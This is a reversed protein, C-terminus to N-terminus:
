YTSWGALLDHMGSPFIFNCWETYQDQQSDALNHSDFYLPDMPMIESQTIETRNVQSVPMFDTVTMGDMPNPQKKSHEQGSM